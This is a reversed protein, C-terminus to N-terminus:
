SIENKVEGGYAFKLTALHTFSYIHVNSTLATVPAGGVFVIIRFRMCSVWQHIHTTM